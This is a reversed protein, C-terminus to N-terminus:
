TASLQLDNHREVAWAVSPLVPYRDEAFASPIGPPLSFTQTRMDRMQLPPCRGRRGGGAATMAM